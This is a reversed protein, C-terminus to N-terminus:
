AHGRLVQENRLPDEYNPSLMDYLPQRIRRLIPEIPQHEEIKGLYYNPEAWEDYCDTDQANM